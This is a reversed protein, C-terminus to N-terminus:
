FASKQRDVASAGLRSGYAAPFGFITSKYQTKMCKRCKRWSAALLGGSPELLGGPGGWSGGSPGLVRGLRAWSGELVGWVPGPDVGSPGLFGGFLSLVGVRREWSEVSPGLVGGSEWGSPALVGPVM